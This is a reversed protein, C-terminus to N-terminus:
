GGREAQGPQTGAAAGGSGSSLLYRDPNWRVHEVVFRALVPKSSLGSALFSEILRTM